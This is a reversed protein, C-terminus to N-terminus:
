TWLESEDMMQLVTYAADEIDSDVSSHGFHSKLIETIAAAKAEYVRNYEALRAALNEQRERHKRQELTEM